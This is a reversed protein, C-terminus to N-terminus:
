RVVFGLVKNVQGQVDTVRAFYSGPSLRKNFVIRALQTNNFRSTQVLNGMASLIEVNWNGSGPRRIMINIWQDSPNPYLFVGESISELDIKRIESYALNGDADRILLRFYLEGGNLLPISYGFDYTGIQRIGDSAVKGITTFDMGDASKQVEYIRGRQENDTTWQLAVQSDNSREATFRTLSATLTINSCYYYTVSFHITDTATAGYLYSNTGTLDTYTLPKYNFAVSGSGLFDVQNQFISDSNDYRYLITYPTMSVSQGPSLLYTGITTDITNDYTAPLASSQIHDNRVVSVSFNGPVSDANKLTFGYNLSVLAHIQTSILTGMAPNFQSLNLLHSGNGNGIIVTDFSISQYPAPCQALGPNRIFFYIIVLLVTKKWCSIIRPAKV